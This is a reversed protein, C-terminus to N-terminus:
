VRAAPVGAGVRLRAAGRRIGRSAGSARHASFVNENTLFGAEVLGPVPPHVARAGTAIVAKGFRLTRGEVEVADQSVFRGQGFFLDVGLSRVREASDHISIRSRLRRMREMVAAFDAQPRGDRVGYAQADRFGAAARSSRILCKSPVCGVNLCDGGLLHREVLAVKAGLGAAGLATVLGATGAGLVVLNYRPAPAPNAWAPPHVNAVLAENHADRPLVAVSEAMAAKRRRPPPRNAASRIAGGGAAAGQARHARHSRRGGRRHGTRGLVFDAAGPIATRRRGGRRGPQAGGLRHVRVHGHGPLMGIWSALAYSRFRVRTLGFAYNLLNFPFVPSLRTLLVIKFGERGVAEDIAAFKANGGIKKAVWGRAVTRGVWFAACAGLTAGVSVTATGLALKFLFGAGITLISGPLFLLCAVIYFLVVVVPGWFGLSQTWALLHLLYEKLPLFKGAAVLGAVVAVVVAIRWWGGKGAKARPCTM